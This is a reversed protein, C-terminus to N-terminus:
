SLIGIYISNMNEHGKMTKHKFCINTNIVITNTELFTLCIAKTTCKDRHSTTFVTLWILTIELGYLTYYAM